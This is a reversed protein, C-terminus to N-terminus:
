LLLPYEMTYKPCLLLLLPYEMTDKKKFHYPTTLFKMLLLFFIISNDGHSPSSRCHAFVWCPGSSCLMSKCFVFSVFGISDGTSRLADVVFSRWCFAQLISCRKQSPVKEVTLFCSLKIRTIKSSTRLLITVYNCVLKTRKFSM